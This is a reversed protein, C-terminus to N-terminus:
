FHARGIENTDNFRIAPAGGSHNINIQEAIPSGASVGITLSTAGSSSPSAISFAGGSTWSLGVTASPGLTGHGDGFIQEYTATAAQNQALLTVDASTTGALIKLGDSHGSTSIGNVTLDYLDNATPAVLNWAGSSSVSGVSLSSAAFGLANASPVYIGEAPVTSSSSIPAAGSINAFDNLLARKINRIHDDATSSLDSGLPWSANLDSIHNVSELGALAISIGGLVILTILWAKTFYRKM